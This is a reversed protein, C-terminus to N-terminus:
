GRVRSVLLALAAYALALYLAKALNYRKLARALPDKRLSGWTPSAASRLMYVLVLGTLGAFDFPRPDKDLGDLVLWVGLFVFTPASFVFAWRLLAADVDNEPESLYLHYLAAACALLCPFVLISNM